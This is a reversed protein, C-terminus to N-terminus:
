RAGPEPVPREATLDEPRAGSTAVAVARLFSWVEATVQGAEREGDPRGAGPHKEALTAFPGAGIRAAVTTLDPGKKGGAGRMRHCAICREAFAEAGRRAGDSAGEPTALAPGFTRQWDALELAVVDAAWWGPARPDTELGPQELTPWALVLSSTRVGDATDALVPKLRRVITLPIPIARSDATRAVVTDAGKALEVRESVLAVLSAGSWEAASRTQPAVGRVTRRPLKLLDARGLSYPGGKVAGRVELVSAGQPAKPLQLGASCAAALFALALSRKRM